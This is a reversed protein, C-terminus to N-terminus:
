ALSHHSHGLPQHNSSFPLLRLYTLYTLYFMQSGPGLHLFPAKALANFVKQKGGDWWVSEERQKAVM